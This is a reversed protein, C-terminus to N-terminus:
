SPQEFCLLGPQAARGVPTATGMEPPQMDPCPWPSKEPPSMAMEMGLKM